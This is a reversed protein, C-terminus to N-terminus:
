FKCSVFCVCIGIQLLCFDSLILLLSLSLLSVERVDSSDVTWPGYIGQYVTPSPSTQGAAKCKLASLKSPSPFSVPSRRLLKTKSLASYNLSPLKPYSLISACLCGCAM